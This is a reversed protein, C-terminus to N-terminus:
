SSPHPQAEKEWQLIQDRLVGFREEIAIDSLMNDGANLAIDAWDQPRLVKVAAPFLVSEEMAMHQRENEIFDRM